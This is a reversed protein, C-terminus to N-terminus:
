FSAHEANLVATLAPFVNKEITDQHSFTATGDVGYNVSLVADNAINVAGVGGDIALLHQYSSSAPEMDLGTSVFCKLSPASPSHFPAAARAAYAGFEPVAATILEVQAESGNHILM